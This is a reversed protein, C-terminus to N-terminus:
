ALSLPEEHPPTHRPCPISVPAPEPVKSFVPDTISDAPESTSTSTPKSLWPLTLASVPLSFNLPPPILPCVAVPEHDAM